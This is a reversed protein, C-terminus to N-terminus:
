KKTGRSNPRDRNASGQNAGDLEAFAPSAVIESWLEKWSTWSHGGEASFVNQAPIASALLEAAGAFRDSRGYSLIASDILGSRNNRLDDAWVWALEDFAAEHNLQARWQDIGGAAEIREILPNMGLFPALLVVATIEDPCANSLWLAGYGGLSIGVLIINQYGKRKYPALVDRFVQDAMLGKEYYAMHADVAVADAEPKATQLMDIFGNEQFAGVADGRGPLFVYLDESQTEGAPYFVSPIPNEAPRSAVCGSLFLMEALVLCVFLLRM